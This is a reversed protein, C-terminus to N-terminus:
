EAVKAEPRRLAAFGERCLIASMLLAGVADVWWWRDVSSLRLGLLAIVALLAGVGSLFGDGRLARSDLRRALRWKGYALPSLVFVSAIAVVLAGTSSEPSSRAALAVTARIAIYTAIALLTLGVIRLASQEADTARSTDRMEAKFRWVLTVSAISDVAANLGFGALTLSHSAFGIALAATGALANWVVTLSCLTAATRLDGRRNSTAMRAM